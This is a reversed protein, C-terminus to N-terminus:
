VLLDILVLYWPDRNKSTGLVAAAQTQGESDRRTGVTRDLKVQARNRRGRRQIELEKVGERQPVWLLKM